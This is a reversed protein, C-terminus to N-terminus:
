NQEWDGLEGLANPKRGSVAWIMAKWLELSFERAFLPRFHVNYAM